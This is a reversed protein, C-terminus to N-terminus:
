YFNERQEYDRWYEKAKRIDRDQTSKDGGHLLLIIESGVNAFYVRYGSGYNIKLEYISEGLSRYDGLNGNKVRNVRANIIAKTKSDRFSNLWEDILIKGESTIYRRIERPQASM